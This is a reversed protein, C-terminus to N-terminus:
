MFSCYLCALVVESHSRVVESHSRVLAWQAQVIIHRKSFHQCCHVNTRVAREMVTNYVFASTRLHVSVCVCVYVCVCVAINEEVVNKLKQQPSNGHAHDVVRRLLREM